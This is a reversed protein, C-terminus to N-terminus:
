QYAVCSENGKYVTERLITVSDKDLLRCLTAPKLHEIWSTLQDEPVIIMPPIVM